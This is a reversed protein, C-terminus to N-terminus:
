TLEHNATGQKVNGLIAAVAKEFADAWATPISNRTEPSAGIMMRTGRHNEPTVLTVSIRIPQQSTCNKATMAYKLHRVEWAELPLHEVVACESISVKPPLKVKAPMGWGGPRICKGGRLTRTCCCEHVGTLTIDDASTLYKSRHMFNWHHMHQWQDSRGTEFKDPQIRNDLRLLAPRDSGECGQSSPLYYVNAFTLCRGLGVGDRDISHELRRRVAISDNLYDASVGSRTTHLREALMILADRLGGLDTRWLPPTLFEDVDMQMIYAAPRQGRMSHSNGPLHSASTKCINSALTQGFNKNMTRRMMEWGALGRVIHVRGPMSRALAHLSAKNTEARMAFQGGSTRLLFDPEISEFIVVRAAGLLTYWAVYEAITRIDYGVGIVLPMCATVEVQRTSESGHRSHEDHSRLPLPECITGNGPLMPYGPCRVVVGDIRWPVSEGLEFRFSAHHGPFHTKKEDMPCRFRVGNIESVLNSQKQLKNKFDRVFRDVPQAQWPQADATSAPLLSLDIADVWRSDGIACRLRGNGAEWAMVDSYRAYGYVTLEDRDTLVAMAVGAHSRVAHLSQPHFPEDGHHRWAISVMTHDDTRFVNHQASQSVATNRGASIAAPLVAKHDRSAAEVKHVNHLHIASESIASLGDHTGFREELAEQLALTEADFAGDIRASHLCDFVGASGRMGPHLDWRPIRLQHRRLLMVGHTLAVRDEVRQKWGFGVDLDDLPQCSRLRFRSRRETPSAVALLAQAYCQELLAFNSRHRGRCEGAEESQMFGIIYAPDLHGAAPAYLSMIPRNINMARLVPSSANARRHLWFISSLYFREFSGPEDLGDEFAAADNETQSARDVQKFSKLADPVIEESLLAFLDPFHSPPTELVMGLGAARNIQQLSQAYSACEREYRAEIAAITGPQCRRPSLRCLERRPQQWSHLLEMASHKSSLVSRATDLLESRRHYEGRCGAIVVLRDATGDNAARAALRPLIDLSSESPPPPLLWDVSGGTFRIRAVLMGGIGRTVQEDLQAQYATRVLHCVMACWLNAATSVGAIVVTRNVLLELIRTTNIDAASASCPRLRLANNAAAPRTAYKRTCTNPWWSTLSECHYPRRLESANIWTGCPLSSM